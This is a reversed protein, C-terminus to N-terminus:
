VLCLERGFVDEFLDAKKKFAWAELAFDPDSSVRVEVSKKKVAVHLSKVKHARSRDLAEAVRLIAALKRVVERDPVPLSSYEDHEMQPFSKRHYRAVCGIIRRDADTVGVMPSSKILYQSHKHHGNVSIFQGIDHLLAAVELLLRHHDNLGHLIRCQDFMEITIKAVQAAHEADYNFKEGLGHAFALVQRHHIEERAVGSQPMLEILIGDKLGVEPVAISKVKIHKAIECLVVGAPVIVDARDARLGFRQMREEVSLAELKQVFPMLRDVEVSKIGSSDAKSELLAAFADLNGGTGFCQDVKKSGLEAQLRRRIATVYKETLRAFQQHSIKREELLNLLRVTGMKVSDSFKLEGGVVVTLEISGGGIDILLSTGQSLSAKSCVALYVLRAEEVGDIVEIHLGAQEAARDIFTQRNRAERVASTAVAKVLTTGQDQALCKFKKLAEIARKITEESIAGCSFVDQGLRVAERYNACIRLDGNPGPSAIALRLANSGIDIAAVVTM